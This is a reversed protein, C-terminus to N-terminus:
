HRVDQHRPELVRRSGHNRSVRGPGGRANWRLLSVSRDLLANPRLGASPCNFAFRQANPAAALTSDLTDNILMTSTGVVPTCSARASCRLKIHVGPRECQRAVMETNMEAV